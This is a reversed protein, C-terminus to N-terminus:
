LKFSNYINILEQKDIEADTFVEMVIPAEEDTLREIQQYLEDINHIAVYTVGNQHCIGEATAHHFGQAMPNEGFGKVQRFIGGEGNNLLLIGINAPLAENWLANSDYFFALDGTVLVLRETKPVAMAFGVATSVCGEIGNIGRNCWVYHRAFLNALRISTSNAYHIHPAYDSYYYQEEFAKVAAAQSYAPEYNIIHQDAKELADYWLDYYTQISFPTKLNRMKYGVAIMKLTDVTDGSIVNTINKYTDAIEGNPSIRWVTEARQLFSKLRKSVVEGGIHLVFDPVYKKDVGEIANLVLDIGFLEDYGNLAEHIIIARDALLELYDLTDISTQEDTQGVVIMPRKAATFEDVFPEASGFTSEWLTIVREKPLKKVTYEFLPESLPVNIHVSPRYYKKAEILAENVLRNIHWRDDDTHPEPINVCKGVFSGLAGPQPITQGVSQGIWAAPRDASIVIIGQHQYTAEAVAPATNLLASGSTVCVVVPRCTAQAMGMAVFAASREDTVPHCKIKPCEALNHIIAANRSGPCVVADTIGHSVLLATLININEKNSYM